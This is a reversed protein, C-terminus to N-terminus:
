YEIDCRKRTFGTTSNSGFPIRLDCEIEPSFRKTKLKGVKFRIRLYLKVDIYFFGESTSQRFQTVEYNNLLLLQQGTFKPQLVTTNKHGQYFVPLSDWGFREGEYYAMADVKDYYIGIKKNPNRISIDLQLNYQLNNTGSLNFQTLSANEAYFKVENPRLVLWVVLSAIGLVVVIAIVLKFLTTLICCPGCGRGRPPRHPPPVTVGQPAGYYAGNFHAGKADAM